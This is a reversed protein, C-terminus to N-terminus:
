ENANELHEISKLHVFYENENINRNKCIQCSVKGNHNLGPLMNEKILKKEKLKKTNFNQISM